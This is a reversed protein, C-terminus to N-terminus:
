HQGDVRDRGGKKKNREMPIPPLINSGSKSSSSSCDKRSSSSALKVVSKIRPKTSEELKVTTMAVKKIPDLTEEEPFDDESDLSIVDALYPSIDKFMETALRLEEEVM